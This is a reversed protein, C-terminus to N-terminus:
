FRLTPARPNNSSCSSSPTISPFTYQEKGPRPTNKSRCPRRPKVAFFSGWVLESLHRALRGQIYQTQKANTEKLKALQSIATALNVDNFYDWFYYAKGHPDKAQGELIYFVKAISPYNTLAKNIIPPMDELSADALRKELQEIDSLEAPLLQLNLTRAFDAITVAM